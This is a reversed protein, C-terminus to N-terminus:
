SAAGAQTLKMPTVAKKFGLGKCYFRMSRELDSICIGIHSVSLQM